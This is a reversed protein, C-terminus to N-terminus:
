GRRTPARNASTQRPLNTINIDNLTPHDSVNHAALLFATYVSSSYKTSNHIIAAHMHLHGAPPMRMIIIM